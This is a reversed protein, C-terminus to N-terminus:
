ILWKTSVADDIRYKVYFFFDFIKKQMVDEIM